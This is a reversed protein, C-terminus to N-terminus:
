IDKFIKEKIENEGCWKKVFGDYTRGSLFLNINRPNKKYKRCIESKTLRNIFFDECIKNMLEESYIDVSVNM